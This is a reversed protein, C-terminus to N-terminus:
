GWVCKERWRDWLRMGANVLAGIREYGWALGEGDEQGRINGSREPVVAVTDRKLRM